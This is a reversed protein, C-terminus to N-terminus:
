DGRGRNVDYSWSAPRALWLFFWGGVLWSCAVLSCAVLSCAVWLGHSSSLTIRLQRHSFSDIMGNLVVRKSQGLVHMGVWRRWMIMSSVFITDSPPSYFCSSTSYNSEDVLNVETNTRHQYSSTAAM